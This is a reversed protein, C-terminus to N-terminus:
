NEKKVQKYKRSQFIGQLLKIDAESVGAQERFIAHLKEETQPQIIREGREFLSVLTQHVDLKEALDAQSLGSLIRLHKILEGNL